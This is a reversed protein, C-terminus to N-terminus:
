KELKVPIYIEIYRDEKRNNYGHHVVLEPVAFTMRKVRIDEGLTCGACASFM